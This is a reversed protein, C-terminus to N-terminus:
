NKNKEGKLTYGQCCGDSTSVHRHNDGHQVTVWAPRETSLAEQEVVVQQGDNSSKDPWRSCDQWINHTHHTEM